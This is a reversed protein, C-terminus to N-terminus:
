LQCWFAYGTCPHERLMHLVFGVFIYVNVPCLIIDCVEELTIKIPASMGPVTVFVDWKGPDSLAVVSLTIGDHIGIDRMKRDDKVVHM